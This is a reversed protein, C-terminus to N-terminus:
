GDASEESRDAIRELTAKRESEQTERVKETQAETARTAAIEQEIGNTRVEARM